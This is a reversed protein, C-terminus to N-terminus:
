ACQAMHQKERHLSTLCRLSSISADKGLPLAFSVQEQECTGKCVRHVPQRPSRPALLCRQGGLALAM